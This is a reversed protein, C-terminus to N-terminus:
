GLLQGNGRQLSQYVKQPQQNQEEEPNEQIYYLVPQNHVPMTSYGTPGASHSPIANVEDCPTDLINPCSTQRRELIPTNTLLDISGHKVMENTYVPRYVM